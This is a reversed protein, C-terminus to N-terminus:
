MTIADLAAELVLGSVPAVFTADPRYPAADASPGDLVFVGAARAGRSSSLVLLSSLEMEIAVVGAACYIEIPLSVFAPRLLARTWIIGRTPNLSRARLQTDLALVLEPYCTAPYGAPLYQDTVGDDRVAAEAVVVAGAGLDGRMSGATGVRVVTRVGADLLEEFAVLAGPAGVGHSTVVVQSGKWGGQFTLYERNSAVEMAGELLEAARAARAPDGVVIAREPLGEAPLGLVPSRSDTGSM